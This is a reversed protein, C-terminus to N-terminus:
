AGGHTICDGIAGVQIVYDYKVGDYKVGDRNARDQNFQRYHVPLLWHSKFRVSILNGM